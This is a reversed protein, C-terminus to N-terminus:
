AHSAFHTAARVNFRGAQVFSMRKMQKAAARPM